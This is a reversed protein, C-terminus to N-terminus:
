IWSFLLDKLSIDNNISFYMDWVNVIMKWFIQSFKVIQCLFGSISVDNLNLQWMMYILLFERQEMELLPDSLLGCRQKWQNYFISLEELISNLAAERYCWDFEERSVFYFLNPGFHKVQRENDEEACELEVMLDVLYTNESGGAPDDNNTPM